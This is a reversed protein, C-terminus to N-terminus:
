AIGFGLRGTLLTEYRLWWWWGVVIDFWTKGQARKVPKESARVDGVGEVAVRVGLASRMLVTNPMPYPRMFPASQIRIAGARARALALALTLALDM